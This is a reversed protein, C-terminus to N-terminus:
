EVRWVDLGMDCGIVLTTGDHSLRAMDPQRNCSRHEGLVRREGTAVDWAIVIPAIESQANISNVAIVVDAADTLLLAPFYEGGLQAVIADEGMEFDLVHLVTSEPDRWVLHSGSANVQGFVPPGDDVQATATVQGTELNWLKVLGDVTSTVAFPPLVRGIRVFADPDNDPSTRSIAENGLMGRNPVITPRGLIYSQQEPTTTQIEVYTLLDGIWVRVPIATQSESVVVSEFEGSAIDFYGLSYTQGDSHLSVLLEHSEGQSTVNGFAMDLVTAPLGDASTLAYSDVYDGSVTDWIVLANARNVTAAHTGNKNLVFWGNQIIGAEEPADAFDITLVSRLQGINMANIVFPEHQAAASTAMALLLFTLLRLISM